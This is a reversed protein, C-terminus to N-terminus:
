LAEVTELLFRMAEEATQRKIEFREGSFIFHRVMSGHSGHVAIYVTGVPKTPTGGGPGAIGTVGIAFDAGLRRSAGEAMTQAVPASVAGLEQLLADPVGLLARKIKNSYAIVGGSYIDSAGPINTICHGILGGTCSEATALTYGKTKFLQVIQESLTDCCSSM